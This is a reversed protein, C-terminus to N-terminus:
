GDGRGAEGVRPRRRSPELAGRDRAVKVWHMATRKPLGVKAAIFDVPPERHSEAFRYLEAVLSSTLTDSPGLKRLRERDRTDLEGTLTFPDSHWPTDRLAERFWKDVAGAPWRTITQPVLRGFTTYDGSAGRLYEMVHAELEAIRVGRLTTSSVDASEGDASVTLARVGYTGGPGVDYRVRYVYGARYDVDVVAPVPVVGVGDLTQLPGSLPRGEPVNGDVAPVVRCVFEPVSEDGEPVIDFGSLGDSM